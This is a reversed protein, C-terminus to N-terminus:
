ILGLRLQQLFDQTDESTHEQEEKQEQQQQQQSNRQEKYQELYNEEQQDVVVTTPTGLNKEMIQAINKAGASLAEMTKDNSCVISITVKEAAYAVKIALRGLNEPHIQIEFEQKGVATKDRLQQVLQNILEQSNGARIHVPQQPGATQQIRDAATEPRIMHEASYLLGDTHEAEERGNESLQRFEQSSVAEPQQVVTQLDQSEGQVETGPVADRIGRQLSIKSTQQKEPLEGATQAEQMMSAFGDAATVTEGANEVQTLLENGPVTQMEVSGDGGDATIMMESVLPMEPVSEELGSSDSVVQLVAPSSNMLFAMMHVGATEALSEEASTGDESEANEPQNESTQQKETKGAAEPKAIKEDDSANSGAATEKSASREPSNQLLDRFRDKQDTKGSKGSAKSAQIHQVARNMPNLQPMMNEMREDVEKRQFLVKLKGTALEIYYFQGATKLM